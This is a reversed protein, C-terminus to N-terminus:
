LRGADVRHEALADRLSIRRQGPSLAAEAGRDDLMWAVYRQGDQEFDRRGVSVSALSDPPDDLALERGVLIDQGAFLFHKM